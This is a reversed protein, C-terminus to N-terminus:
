SLPTMAFYTAIYYAAWYLLYPVALFVVMFIAYATVNQRMDSKIIKKCSTCQASNAYPIFPTFAIFAVIAWLIHPRRRFNMGGCNACPEDAGVPLNCPASQATRIIDRAASECAVPVHLGFGFLAFRLEPAWGLHNLEGIIVPIGDAQLAGKAVLAEELTVFRQVCALGSM